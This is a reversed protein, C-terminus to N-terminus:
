IVRALVFILVKRILAVLLMNEKNSLISKNSHSVSSSHLTMRIAKEMRVRGVKDLTAEVFEPRPVRLSLSLPARITVGIM